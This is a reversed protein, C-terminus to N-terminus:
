KLLLTFINYLENYKNNNNNIKVLIDNINIESKLKRYLDKITHSSIIIEFLNINENRYKKGRDHTTLHNIISTWQLTSYIFRFYFLYIYIYKVISIYFQKFKPDIDGFRDNILIIANTFIINIFYCNLDNYKLDSMQKFIDKLDGEPKIIEHIKSWINKNDEFNIENVYKLIMQFFRYGNIIPQDIQFPFPSDLNHFKNNLTIDLIKYITTYNFNEQKFIEQINSDIDNNKYDNEICKFEELLRDRNKEDKCMNPDFFRGPDKGRALNRIGFLVRLTNDLKKSLSPKTWENEFKFIREDTQAYMLHYAKLLDHPYLEKGRSNSSDFFQFAESINDVIILNFECHEKIFDSYINVNETNLWSRIVKFNVKFNDKVRILELNNDSYLDIIKIEKILDEVELGTSKDSDSCKKIMSLTFLRQQGDIIAYKEGEKDEEVHKWLIITGLRYKFNEFYIENKVSTYVEYLDNLFQEVRNGEWTYLRQFPPVELEQVNELLKEVSLIGVIPYELEDTFTNQTGNNQSVNDTPM